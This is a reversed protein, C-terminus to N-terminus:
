EPLDLGQGGTCHSAKRSGLANLVLLKYPLYGFPMPYFGNHFKYTYDSIISYRCRGEKPTAGGFGGDLM